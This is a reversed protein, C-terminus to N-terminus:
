PTAGPEASRGLQPASELRPAPIAQVLPASGREGGAPQHWARLLALSTGVAAALVVAVGLATWAIVRLNVEPDIRM